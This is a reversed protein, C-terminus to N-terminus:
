DHNLSFDHHQSEIETNFFPYLLSFRECACQGFNKAVCVLANILLPPVNKRRTLKIIEKRFLILIRQKNRLKIDCTRKKLSPNRIARRGNFHIIPLVTITNIEREPRYKKWWSFFGTFNHTGCSESKTRSVSHINLCNSCPKLISFIINVASLM